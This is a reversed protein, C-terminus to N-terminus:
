LHIYVWLFSLIVLFAGAIILTLGLRIHGKPKWADRRMMESPGVTEKGFASAVSAAKAASSTNRSIGGSGLLFGAGALILLIADLVLIELPSYLSSYFVSPGYRSALARVWLQLLWFSVGYTVLAVLISAGILLVANRLSYKNVTRLCYSVTDLIFPRESCSQPQFVVSPLRM